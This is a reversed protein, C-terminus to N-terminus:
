CQRPYPHLGLVHDEYSRSLDNNKDDSMDKPKMLLLFEFDCETDSKDGDLDDYFTDAHDTDGHFFIRVM